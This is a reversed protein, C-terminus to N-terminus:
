CRPVDRLELTRAPIRAARGFLGFALRRPASLVMSATAAAVHGLKAARPVVARGRTVDHEQQSIRSGIASYVRRASDVALAARWPLAALGRDGSRYYRAALGLLEEVVRAVAPVAAAPLPTGLGGALGAAGHGALLDDPLYLRGGSRDEGAERASTRSRV